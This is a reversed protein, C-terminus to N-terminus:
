NNKKCMCDKCRPQRYISRNAGKIHSRQGEEIMKRIRYEFGRWTMTSNERLIGALRMKIPRLTPGNGGGYYTRFGSVLSSLQSGSDTMAFVDAVACAVFDIAALKSSFNRFPALEGPSLLDEKTVINPYLSILPRMRLKGGYIESGALYIYTQPDFGLGALVLAAEEPTLPCKGMKRLESSSVPKMKKLRELVLPFHSERYAQLERRENEGGGFSCMSYAVMDVEFRLHLALYKSTPSPQTINPVFNGLLQEDLASQAHGNKRIRKVLLSSIKQIEPVFKLAHFNCKCRLKQLHSSLGDFGLRNGFGLFHVIKNRSLIPFINKIYEDPTAEKSLYADTVLSGIAKLDISKLHLPLDKVISIDDKLINMFTDEQYIDSFQSPDKWVNSYLFKPIVLTANLLSAVAVANCIAVRQQNLGGNASVLIYGTRNKVTGARKDNTNDACPKWISAQPYTEKWFRTEKQELERQALSVSAMSLLRPYMVVSKERDDDNTTNKEENARSQTKNLYIPDFVSFMLSDLLFFFAILTFTFIISRIYRRLWSLRRKKSKHDNKFGKSILIAKDWNYDGGIIMRRSGEICRSQYGFSDLKSSDPRPSKPSGQKGM